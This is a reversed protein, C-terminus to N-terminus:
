RQGRDEDADFFGAQKAMAVEAPIIVVAGLQASLRLTRRGSSSSSPLIRQLREGPGTLKARGSWCPHPQPVWRCDRAEPADRMLIQTLAWYTDAEEGARATPKRFRIRGGSM